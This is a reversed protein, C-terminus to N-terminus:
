WVFCFLVFCFLVFCFLVFCFLVFCFLVFCFLVFCFLVFCFLVSCFLVSCFLVSCCFCYSVYWTIRSSWMLAAWSISDGPIMPLSMTRSILMTRIPVTSTAMKPPHLASSNFKLSHVHVVSPLSWSRLHARLYRHSPSLPPALTSYPYLSRPILLLVRLSQMSSLM